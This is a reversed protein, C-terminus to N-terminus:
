NLSAAAKAETEFRRLYNPHNLFSVPLTKLAVLRNLRSDKALYVEGMGGTGIRSIIQYHGLTKGPLSNSEKIKLFPSIDKILPESIFNGAQANAALLSEVERRLTEDGACMKELFVKREGSDLEAAATYIESVKEWQEPTM